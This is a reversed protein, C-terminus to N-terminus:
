NNCNEKCSISLDIHKSEYEKTYSKSFFDNDFVYKDNKNICKARGYGPNCDYGM